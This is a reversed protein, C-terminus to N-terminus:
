SYEVYNYAQPRNQEKHAIVKQILAVAPNDRNRYRVKKGSKIEIEALQENLPTLGINITQTKGAEISVIRDKYGVFSAKLQTFPKNTSINYKGDGNTPTAITTGAFSITVFPLTEKTGADTVTGTVITAQAFLASTYFSFFAVFLLKRYFNKLDM